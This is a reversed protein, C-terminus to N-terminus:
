SIVLSCGISQLFCLHIAIVYHNQVTIYVIICDIIYLAIYYYFIFFCLMYCISHGPTHCLIVYLCFDKIISISDYGSLLYFTGTNNLICRIFFLQKNKDYLFVIDKVHFSYYMLQKKTINFKM